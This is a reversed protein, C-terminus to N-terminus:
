QTNKSSENQKMKYVPLARFLAIEASFTYQEGSSLSKSYLVVVFVTEIFNLASGIVRGDQKGCPSTELSCLYLSPKQLSAM